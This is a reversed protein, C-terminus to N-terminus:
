KCGLNNLMNEKSGELGLEESIKDAEADLQTTDMTDTAKISENSTEQEVPTIPTEGPTQERNYEEELEAISSTNMKDIQNEFEEKTLTVTTAGEYGELSAVEITVTPKAGRNVEVIRGPLKNTDKFLVVAGVLVKDFNPAVFRNQQRQSLLELLESRESIMANFEEVDLNANELISDTVTKVIEELDTENTAENIALIIDEKTSKKNIVVSKTTQKITGPQTKGPVAALGNSTNFVNITNLAEISTKVWEPFDAMTLEKRGVDRRNQNEKSFDVKLANLLETPMNGLPTDPTIQETIKTTGPATAGANDVERKIREALIQSAAVPVATPTVGTGPTTEEAKVEEENVYGNKKAWELIYNMINVYKGSGFPIEELTNVAYFTTPLKQGALFETIDDPNFFAQFKEFIDKIAENAAMRNKYDVLSIKLADKARQHALKYAESSMRAAESFYKPDNIMNVFNASAHADEALEYYDLMDNVIKDLQTSNVPLKTIAALYNRLDKALENKLHELNKTKVDADFQLTTQSPKAKGSISLTQGNIKVTKRKVAGDETYEITVSAKGRKVVKGKISKKKKPTYEVDDGVEVSTVAHMNDAARKEAETDNVSNAAHVGWSHGELSEKLAKLSELQIKKEAGLKKQEDTGTSYIDFEKQLSEIENDIQSYVQGQILVPNVALVSTLKGSLLGGLGANAANNLISNMRSTARDFTYENFVAAKKAAEFGLYDFQENPDKSKYNFPNVLSAYKDYREQIQEVKGKVSKLRGRLDKRYESAQADRKDIAFAEMLEDDNMQEFQSIQDTFLDTYGRKMLLSVHQFLSDQAADAHQKKNNKDDADTMIAAFDKQNKLNEFIADYYKTPDDAVNNLFNTIQAQEDARQKESATYAAADKRKARFDKYAQPASQTLLTQPGQVLGGMLFGSLFTEVGQGSFQSAMGKGLANMFEATGAREVGGFTDTYYDTMAKSVGEQYVEQFGETLNASLYRLGNRAINSPRFGNKVYQRAIGGSKFLTGWEKVSGRDFFGHFAKEGKKAGYNRVMTGLPNPGEKFGRYGGFLKDFVIKNSYLIAPANLYTTSIGAAKAQDVIAQAEKDTPPAANTKYHEALLNNLTDNQVFGGELRSEALAANLQQAERFFAGFTGSNAAFDTIKAFGKESSKFAKVADTTNNLPNLFSAVATTNSKLGNWFKRASSIDSVANIATGTSAAQQVTQGANALKAADTAFDGLKFLKNLNQGTRALAAPLALGETAATGAALALEELIVESMVGISYASNAMQNTLFGGVGGRSSSAIAMRRNMDAAYRADGATDATLLNDWNSAMQRVGLGALGFWEGAARRTDDWASSNENYYTEMDMYPNWGLRDYAPSNYYRDFNQKAPGNGFGVKRVLHAADSPEIAGPTTVGGILGNIYDRNGNIGAKPIPTGFKYLGANAGLERNIAPLKPMMDPIAMGQSTGLINNISQELAPGDREITQKVENLRTLYQDLPDLGQTPLTPAFEAM